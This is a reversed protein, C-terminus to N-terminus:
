NTDEIYTYDERSMRCTSKLFNIAIKEITISM